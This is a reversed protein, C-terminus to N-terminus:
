WIGGSFHHSNDNIKANIKNKMQSKQNANAVARPKVGRSLRTAQVPIHKKKLNAKRVYVRPKRSGVKSPQAAKALASKVKAVNVMIAFLRWRGSELKFGFDFNVREPRTEFYGTLRLFGRETIAPQKVLKPQFLLAPALDLKRNRLPTFLVALKASSNASQFASSGLARIVTYNGTINANNLAILVSRILVVLTSAQPVAPGATKLQVSQVKACVPASVIILFVFSLRLVLLRAVIKVM